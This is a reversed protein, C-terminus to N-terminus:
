PLKAQKSRLSSGRTLGSSSPLSLLDNRGLIALPPFFLLIATKERSAVRLTFPLLRSNIEHIQLITILNGRRQAGRLSELKQSHRTKLPNRPQARSSM